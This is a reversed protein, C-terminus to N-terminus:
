SASTNECGLDEMYDATTIYGELFYYNLDKTDYPSMGTTTIQFFQGVIKFQFEFVQLDDGIDFLKGLDLEASYVEQSVLSKDPVFRLTHKDELYLSGRIKPSFKLLDMDVLDGPNLGELNLEPHFKIKIPDQSSIVGTTFASIYNGFEPNFKVPKKEKQSDCSLLVTMVAVAALISLSRIKNM